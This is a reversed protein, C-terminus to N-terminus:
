DCRGDGWDLPRSPDATGVFDWHYGRPQLVLRLVGFASSIRVESGPVPRRRFRRLPAGGTGVVFTRPGAESPLGDADLPSLREYSHDHGALVVDAGGAHLARWVADMEEVDGHAASSFRPHHALVVTCRGGAERLAAQLWRLQTRDHMRTTNLAILRWEGLEAAYWGREPDAASRGFEGLRGAFTRVWGEAGPTEMDHNGLVPLIRPVHRGWAPVFCALFDEPSGEPYALDGLAAIPGPLSDLLAATAEDGPSECHGTDGAALLVTGAAASADDHADVRPDTDRVCAAALLLPVAAALFPPIARM